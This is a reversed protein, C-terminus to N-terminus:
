SFWSLTRRGLKRLRETPKPETPKPNIIRDARALFTGAIAQIGEETPRVRDIDMAPRPRHSRARKTGEAGIPPDYIWFHTRTKAYFIQGDRRLIFMDDIPKTEGNEATLEEHISAELDGTNEFGEDIYQRVHLLKNGDQFNCSRILRGGSRFGKATRTEEGFEDLLTSFTQQFGEIFTPDLEVPIKQEVSPQPVESM